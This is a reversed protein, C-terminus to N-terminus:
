PSNILYPPSTLQFSSIFSFLQLLITILSKHLIKLGYKVV